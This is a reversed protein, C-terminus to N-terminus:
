HEQHLTVATVELPTNGLRLSKIPRDSQLYHGLEDLLTKHHKAVYAANDTLKVQRTKGQAAPRGLKRAPQKNVNSM